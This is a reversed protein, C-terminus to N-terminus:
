LILLSSTPRLLLQPVVDRLLEVAAHMAEVAEDETPETGSHLWANRSRRVADLRTVLPPLLRGANDLAKCVDVSKQRAQLGPLGHALRRTRLECVTWAAVVALPYDHTSIATQTQNLLDFSVLADATIVEDLWDLAQVFTGAPIVGFRHRDTITVVDAAGPGALQYWYDDGGDTIDHRFLDREGVRVVTPSTNANSMSAAHLLTLHSNIIRLRQVLAPKAARSADGFRQLAVRGPQTARPAPRGPQWGAFDYITFGRREATVAIGCRMTHSVVVNCWDTPVAAGPRWMLERDSPEGGIWGMLIMPDYIASGHRMTGTHHPVVDVTVHNM